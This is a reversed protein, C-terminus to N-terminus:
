AGELEVVSAWFAGGPYRFHWWHAWGRSIGDADAVSPAPPHAGLVGVVAGGRLQGIEVLLDRSPDPPALLTTM